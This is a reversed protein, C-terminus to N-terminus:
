CQGGRVLVVVDAIACERHRPWEWVRFSNKPARLLWEFRIRRFRNVWEKGVSKRVTDPSFLRSEVSESNGFGDEFNRREIVFVGVLM